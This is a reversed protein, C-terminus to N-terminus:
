VDKKDRDTDQQYMEFLSKRLRNRATIGLPALIAEYKKIIEWAQDENIKHLLDEDVEIEVFTDRKGNEDVVTYFPLTADKFKYIQVYKCITFNHEYGLGTTLFGEITAKDNNDVRVNHEIRIINSSKLKKKTTLEARKNKRDDAFRYRVFEYDVDESISKRTYYIDDSDVYTFEKYNDPDSDRYNRVLQKWENLKGEDLRFKVEFEHFELTKKPEILELQKAEEAM